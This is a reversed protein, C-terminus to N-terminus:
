TQLIYPITGDSNFSFPQMAVSRRVDGRAPQVANELVPARGYEPEEEVM